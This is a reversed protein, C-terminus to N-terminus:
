GPDLLPRVLKELGNTKIELMLAMREGLRGPPFGDRGFWVLYPEPLEILPTGAFRGFPMPMRAAELLAQGDPSPLTESM